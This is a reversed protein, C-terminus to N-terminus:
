RSGAKPRQPCPAEVGAEDKSAERQVTAHEQAALLVCPGSRIFALDTGIGSSTRSPRTAYFDGKSFVLGNLVELM